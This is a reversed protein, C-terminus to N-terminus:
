RQRQVQNRVQRVHLVQHNGVEARHHYYCRAPLFGIHSFVTLDNYM